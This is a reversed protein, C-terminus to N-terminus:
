PADELFGELKMAGLPSSAAQSGLLIQLPTISILGEGIAVCDTGPIKQFGAWTGGIWYYPKGRPDHREEIVDAYSHRGIESLRYRLPLQAKKPVNVNLITEAPLPHSLVHAALPSLFAAALTYDLDHYGVQSIAIASTGRYAGELAAAVTGSYIVDIGLNAGANIGSVVLDPKRDRLIVETAMFVCDAPTGSVAFGLGAMEKVRLPKNLTISHSSASQEHLPAVVFVDGLPQLAKKAAALGPAFIGDDNTLLITTL